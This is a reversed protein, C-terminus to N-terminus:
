GIKKGGRRSPIWDHQCNPHPLGKAEDIPVERGLLASCVKCDTSRGAFRVHTVDLERYGDLRGETIIRATETRAITKARAAVSDFVGRALGTGTLRRAIERTGEGQLVGTRIAQAVRSRCDDSLNRLWGFEYNAAFQLVNRNVVVFKEGVREMAEDLGGRYLKPVDMTAGLREALGPVQVVIKEGRIVRKGDIFRDLEDVTRQLWRQRAPSAADPLTILKALVERRTALLVRRYAAFQKEGALKLDM